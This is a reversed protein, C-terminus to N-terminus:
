LLDRPRGPDRHGTQYLHQRRRFPRDLARRRWSLGARPRKGSNLPAFSGRGDFVVIDGRGVPESRFDTRSVIIRDGEQFLPEMSASPIYYVDLWLSRVLGSILVALVVALLVFRWGLKRPQRKTHEM